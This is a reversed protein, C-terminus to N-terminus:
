HSSNLRTSKRDQESVHTACAPLLRNSGKLEVLCLRCAGAASMGELYCLTPIKIGIEQAASFITQDERASVLRGDIALTKVAM